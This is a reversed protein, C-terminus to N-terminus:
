RAARSRSSRKHKRGSRATPYGVMRGVHDNERRKGRYHADWRADEAVCSHHRERYDHQSLTDANNIGDPLAHDHVASVLREIEVTEIEPLQDRKWACKMEADLAMAYCLAADGYRILIGADDEIQKIAPEDRRFFLPPVYYQWNTEQCSEAYARAQQGLVKFNKFAPAKEWYLVYADALTAKAHAAMVRCILVARKSYNVGADSSDDITRVLKLHWRGAECMAQARITPDDKTIDPRLLVIRHKAAEKDFQNRDYEFLLRCSFIQDDVERLVSEAHDLNREFERRNNEAKKLRSRAKKLDCMLKPAPFELLELRELPRVDRLESEYCERQAIYKEAMEFLHKAGVEMGRADLSEIALMLYNVAINTFVELARNYGRLRTGFDFITAASETLVDINQGVTRPTIGSDILNIGLYITKLADSTSDASSASRLLADVSARFNQHNSM